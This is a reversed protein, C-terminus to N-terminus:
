NRSDRLSKKPLATLEGVVFGGSEKGLQISKPLGMKEIGNAMSLGFDGKAGSLLQVMKEIRIEMSGGNKKEM